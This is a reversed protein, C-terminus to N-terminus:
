APCCRSKGRTQPRRTRPGLEVRHPHLTYYAIARTTGNRSSSDSNSRAVRWAWEFGHKCKEVKCRPPRELHTTRWLPQPSIFSSTPSCTGARQQPRHPRHPCALRVNSVSRHNSMMIESDYPMLFGQKAKNLNGCEVNTTSETRVPVPVPMKVFTTPLFFPLFFVPRCFPFTPWTRLHALGFESVIYVRPVAWPKPQTVADM